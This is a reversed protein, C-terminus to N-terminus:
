YYPVLIASKWGHHIEAWPDLVCFFQTSRKKTSGPDTMVSRFMLKSNEISCVFVTAHGHWNPIKDLNKTTATKQALWYATLPTSVNSGRIQNWLNQSVCKKDVLFTDTQSLTYVM